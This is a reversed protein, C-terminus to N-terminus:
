NYKDPQKTHITPLESPVTQSTIERSLFRLVDTLAAMYGYHWYIKEETGARTHKQEEFCGRGNEELWERIGKARTELPEIDFVMDHKKM